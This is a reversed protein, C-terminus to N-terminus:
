DSRTRRRPRDACRSPRRPLPGRPAGPGLTKRPKRSGQGGCPRPRPGGPRRRRGPRPAPAPSRVGAVSSRALYNRSIKSHNRRRPQNVSGALTSYHTAGFCGKFPAKGSSHGEKGGEAGARDERDRPHEADESEERQEDESALEIRLRLRKRRRRRRVRTRGVRAGATRRHRSQLIAARADRGVATDVEGAINVGARGRERRLRRPRDDVNRLGLGLLGLTLRDALDVDAAVAADRLFVDDRVQALLRARDELDVVERAVNTRQPVRAEEVVDFDVHGPGVVAEGEAEEDALARVDLRHLEFAVLLELVVLELLRDLDLRVRDQAHRGHAAAHLLDLIGVGLLTVEEGVDVALDFRLAVVFDDDLELDDLVRGDGNAADREDAVVRDRLFLEARVHLRPLRRDEREAGATRVALVDELAIDEEQVGKIVVLAVHVHLDARGAHHERGIALADLDRDRDM